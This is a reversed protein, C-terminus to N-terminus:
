PSPRAPSGSPEAEPAPRLAAISGLVLGFYLMDTNMYRYARYLDTGFLTAVIMFALLSLGFALALLGALGGSSKWLRWAEVLAAIVVLALLVALPLGYEASVDPLLDHPSQLVEKAQPDHYPGAYEVGFLGPGVGFLPHDITMAIAAKTAIYRETISVEGEPSNPDFSNQRDNTPTTTTSSSSHGTAIAALDGYPVVLASAILVAVCAVSRGRWSGPVMLALGVFVALTAILASKSYTLYTVLLVLALVLGSTIRVWWEVRPAPERAEQASTVSSSERRILAATSGAARQIFTAFPGPRVLAIVIFPVVIVLMGGLIGVNYYTVRGLEARLNQFDGFSHVITLMRGLSVAGAIAVSAAMAAGLAALQRTTPRLAVLVLGILIPELVGHLTIPIGTSLDPSIATPVVALLAMAGGVALLWVISRPPRAAAREDSGSRRRLGLLISCALAALIVTSPTLQIWGVFPGLRAATFFPMALIWALLAPWPRYAALAAVAIGVAMVGLAAALPVHLGSRQYDRPLCIAAAGVAGFAALVAVKWDPREAL